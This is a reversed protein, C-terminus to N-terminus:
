AKENKANLPQRASGHIQWRRAVMMRAANAVIL